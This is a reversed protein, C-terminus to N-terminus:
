QNYRLGAGGLKRYSPIPPVFSLIPSHAFSFSSEKYISSIYSFYISRNNKCCDKIAAMEKLSLHATETFERRFFLFILAAFSFDSPHSIWSNSGM